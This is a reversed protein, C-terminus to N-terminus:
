THLSSRTSFAAGKMFLGVHSASLIQRTDVSAMSVQCQRDFKPLAERKGAQPCLESNLLM